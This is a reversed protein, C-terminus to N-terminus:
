VLDHAFIGHHIYARLFPTQDDRHSSENVKSQKLFPKTAAKAGGRNNVRVVNCRQLGAFTDGINEFVGLIPVGCLTKRSLPFAVMLAAPGSIFLVLIDDTRIRFSNRELVLCKGEGGHDLACLDLVSHNREAIM